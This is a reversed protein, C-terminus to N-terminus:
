FGGLQAAEAVPQARIRGHAGSINFALAGNKFRADCIRNLVSVSFALEHLRREIRDAFLMRCIPAHADRGGTQRMRIVAPSVGASGPRLKKCPEPPTSKM